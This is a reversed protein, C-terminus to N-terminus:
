PRVINQQNSIVRATGVYSMFTEIAMREMPQNESPQITANYAGGDLEASPQLWGASKLAPFFKAVFDETTKVAQDMPKQLAQQAVAAITDDVYTAMEVVAILKTAGETKAGTLSDWWVFNGGSVYDVYFVPNIRSAALTELDDSELEVTQIMGTRTVAFDSGAIVVNRKAIGKANVVANRACRLGINLGSTGIFAQGGAAPNTATFPAWYCQSYIIDTDGGVSDYFNVAAEVSFRGPIDWPVQRNIDKGLQLLRSLLAVSETGGSGIYTFSPKARRLRAVAADLDANTYLTPGETFYQLPSGSFIDKNGTKGYFVCTPPIVADLAVDTVLLLDTYQTVIDTIFYSKGFEDLAAPDLSGTYPGLVIENTNVDRLQLTVIKSAQAVGADNEVAVAHIEPQVGESFCELHKIALLDGASLGVEEDVLKWVPTATAGQAPPLSATAVMLQNKASASVLRSVVAQVTGAKLAEYIHVYPQALASASMSQAAGLWRTQKGKSVAFAKDIRGRSFRGTIAMNHAVTNTSPQESMDNIPYLLVGSRKDITRSFPITM